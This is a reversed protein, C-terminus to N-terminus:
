KYKNILYNHYAEKYDFDAIPKKVAALERVWPSVEADPVKDESLSALYHEVIKSLSTHHAKAYAKANNIVRDRINLTLKTNAM